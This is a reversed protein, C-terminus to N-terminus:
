FLNMVKELTRKLRFMRFFWYNNTTEKDINLIFSGSQVKGNLTKIPFQKKSVKRDDIKAIRRGNASIIATTSGSGRLLFILSSVFM